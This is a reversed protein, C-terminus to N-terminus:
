FGIGIRWISESENYALLGEGYGNFYQITLIPLFSKFMAKLRLTVEQGGQTPDMGTRGGPYLRLTLDSREFSSGEVTALTLNLEWLGRYQTIDSNTDEKNYPLWAKLSGYLNVNEWSFAEASYLLYFRNWGRSEEGAQGNSEHEFIGVDVWNSPFDDIHVRYFIEPNYNVDQFPSSEQGLEWFMLQSYALYLDADELLKIKFSLSLKSNPDGLLFYNPKYGEAQWKSLVNENSYAFAQGTFGISGFIFLASIFFLSCIKM